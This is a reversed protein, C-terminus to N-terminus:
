PLRVKLVTNALARWQDRDQALHMWDVDECVTEKLETKNENKLKCSQTEL